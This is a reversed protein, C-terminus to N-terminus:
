FNEKSRAQEIDNVRSNLTALSASLTEQGKIMTKLLDEVSSPTGTSTTATAAVRQAQQQRPRPTFKRITGDTMHDGAFHGIQGCEFCPNGPGPHKGTAAVTVSSDPVSATADPLSASVTAKPRFRSPLERNWEEDIKAVATQLATWDSRDTDRTLLIRKLHDPLGRFYKTAKDHDSFGTRGHLQNYDQTYLRVPRVNRREHTDACLRDLKAEADLADQVLGFQAKFSTVFDETKTWWLTPTKNGSAYNARYPEAWQAAPGDLYSLTVLVFDDVAVIKGRACYLQCATVFAACATRSKGDYRSPTLSKLIAKDVESLGAAM